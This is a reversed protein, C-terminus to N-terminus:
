PKPLKATNMWFEEISAIADYFNDVEAPKTIYSNAHNTYSSFIDINSSSTTLMLIPIHRFKEDSKIKQLVEHGSKKPLNIDLLILDPEEVNEFKDRKYVFDLAEQGDRAISLQNNIKRQELAEQTLLIDGENDEVLLIHIKKYM